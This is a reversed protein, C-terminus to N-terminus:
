FRRTELYRKYGEYGAKVIKEFHRISELGTEICVTKGRQRMDHMLCSQFTSDGLEIAYVLYYTLGAGRQNLELLNSYAKETLGESRMSHRIEDTVLHELEIEKLKDFM